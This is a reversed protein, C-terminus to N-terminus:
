YSEWPSCLSCSKRRQDEEDATEDEEDENAVQPNGEIHPLAGTNGDPDVYTFGLPAIIPEGAETYGVTINEGTFQITLRTGSASRLPPTVARKSDPRPLHQRHWVFLM